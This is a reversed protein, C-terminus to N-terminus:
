ILGASPRIGMGIRPFGHWASKISKNPYIPGRERVGELIAAIIGLTAERNGAAKIQNEKVIIANGSSPIQLSGSQPCIVESRLDTVTIEVPSHRCINAMQKRQIEFQMWM